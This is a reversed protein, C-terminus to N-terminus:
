QENRQKFVPKKLSDEIGMLGLETILPLSVKADQALEVLSKDSTNRALAIFRKVKSVIPDSAPTYGKRIASVLGREIDNINAKRFSGVQLTLERRDHNSIKNSISLGSYTPSSSSKKLNFTYLRTKGDDTKTKVFLNTVSTTTLNPFKLPKIRRLFITTAQRSDLPLDTTYTFHTPDALFVQTIRENVGSFDIATARGTWVKVESSTLPKLTSSQAYSPTTFFVALIAFISLYSKKLTDIKM